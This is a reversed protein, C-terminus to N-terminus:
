FLWIECAAIPWSRVNTLYLFGRLFRADDILAIIRITASCNLCESTTWTVM